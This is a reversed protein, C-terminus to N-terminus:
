RGFLRVEARARDPSTAEYTFRVSAINRRPGNLAIARTCKGPELIAAVKVDQNGGNRFRMDLDYLRVAHGYACLRVQAFRRGGPVSIVDRDVRDNVQRQGLMTWGSQAAAPSAAMAAILAFGLSYRDLM